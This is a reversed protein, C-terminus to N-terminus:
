FGDASITGTAPADRGSRLILAVGVGASVAVTAVTSWVWWKQYWREPQEVLQAWAVTTEDPDVFFDGQWPMFGSKAVRVSHKGLSLGRMPPLPLEGRREEDIFAEAGEQSATVAIAGRTEVKLGILERGVHRVARILQDEEGRFSTTMRNDVRARRADILRLTIVFSDALKGVNGVILKDVGLAGGIVALCSTDETCGLRMKQEDFRLFTQIDDRGIVSAGEIRKIEASLIQTLNQASEPSIGTPQLDFVAFSTRRGKELRFAQRQVQEQWGFLQAVVRPLVGTIQDLSDVTESVRGKPLARVADVLSITVVFSKGVRGISGTVLLEAKAQQSIRAMCALDEECGMTQRTQEFTLITRLDDTTSVQYEARADVLKAIEATILPIADTEIGVPRIDLILVRQKGSSAPEAPEEAYATQRGAFLSATCAALVFLRWLTEGCM